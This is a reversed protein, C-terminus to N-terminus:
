TKGAKSARNLGAKAKPPLKGSPTEKAWKAAMNPKQAWMWRRQAESRFPMVAGKEEVGRVMRGVSHLAM